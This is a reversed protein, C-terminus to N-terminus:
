GVAGRDQLGSHVDGETRVLSDVIFLKAISGPSQLMDLDEFIEKSNLCVIKAGQGSGHWTSLSGFHEKGGSNKDTEMVNQLDDLEDFAEDNEDKDDENQDDDDDLDDQDDEKQEYGEVKINVLYLKKDMEFLRERPIKAPQRCAIRVRVKEYFSKFLASWDVDRLLGFSSSMQAFISWDCWMPPIGEM